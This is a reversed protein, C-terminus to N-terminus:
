KTDKPALRKGGVLYGKDKLFEDYLVEFKDWDHRYLIRYTVLHFFGHLFRNLTFAQRYMDLKYTNADREEEELSIYQKKLLTHFHHHGIEHFFAQALHAKGFLITIIAARVDNWKKYRTPRPFFTFVGLCWNLYLFITGGSTQDPEAYSGTVTGIVENPIRQDSDDMLVVFELDKLDKSPVKTLLKQVFKKVNFIRSVKTLDVIRTDSGAFSLYCYEDYGKMKGKKLANDLTALDELQHPLYM